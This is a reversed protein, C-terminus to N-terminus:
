EELNIGDTPRHVITYETAKEEKLWKLFEDLDYKDDSPYPNNKDDVYSEAEERSEFDEEHGMLSDEGDYKFVSYTSFVMLDSPNFGKKKLDETALEADEEDMCVSGEVSEHGDWGYRLQDDINLVYYQKEYKYNILNRADVMQKFDLQLDDMEKSSLNTNLYALNGDSNSWLDYWNAYYSM